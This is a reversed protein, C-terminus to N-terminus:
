LNEQRKNTSCMVPAKVSWIPEHAECLRTSLNRIDELHGMRRLKLRESVEHEQLLSEVTYWGRCGVSQLKSITEKYIGAVKLAKPSTIAM